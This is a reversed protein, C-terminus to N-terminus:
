AAKDKAPACSPCKATIDVRNKRLLQEFGRWRESPAFRGSPRDLARREEAAERRTDLADGRDGTRERWIMGPRGESGTTFREPNEEEVASEPHMYIKQPGQMTDTFKGAIRRPTLESEGIDSIDGTEEVDEGLSGRPWDGEVARAEATDEPEPTINHTSGRRHQVPSEHWGGERYKNEMQKRWDALSAEQRKHFDNWRSESQLDEGRFDPLSEFQSRTMDVVFSDEDEVTRFVHEAPVAVKRKGTDVVLYHIDGSQHDFIVDKIEGLKRDDDGFLDAGRIDDAAETFHYDALTGYHAM